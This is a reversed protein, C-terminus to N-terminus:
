HLKVNHKAEYDEILFREIFTKSDAEFVLKEGKPGANLMVVHNKFKGGKKVTEASSASGAVYIVDNGRKDKGAFEMMQPRPKGAWAADREANAAAKHGDYGCGVLGAMLMAGVLLILVRKM